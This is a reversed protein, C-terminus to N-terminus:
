KAGTTSNTSKCRNNKMINTHLSLSLAQIQLCKKLYYVTYHECGVSVKNEKTTRSRQIVLAVLEAFCVTAKRLPTGLCSNGPEMSKGPIVPKLSSNLSLFHMTQFGELLIIEWDTDSFDKM